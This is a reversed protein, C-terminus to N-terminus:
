RKSYAAPNGTGSRISTDCGRDFRRQAIENCSTAFHVTGLRQDSQEQSFAPAVSTGALATVATL